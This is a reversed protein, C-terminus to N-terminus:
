EKVSHMEYVITGGEDEDSHRHQNTMLACARTHFPRIVDVVVVLNFLSDYSYKLMTINMIRAPQSFTEISEMTHEDNSVCCLLSYKKDIKRSQSHPSMM